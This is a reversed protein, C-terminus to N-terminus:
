DKFELIPTYTKKYCLSSDDGNKRCYDCYQNPKRCFGDKEFITFDLPLIECLKIALKDLREPM